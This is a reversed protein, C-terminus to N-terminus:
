RVSEVLEMLKATDVVGPSVRVTEPGLVIFAPTGTVGLRQALARNAAIRGTVETSAMDSRLRAADLGLTTALEDVLGEGYGEPREMLAFHADVYRDQLGAALALRAARESDEGLIPYERLELRVGARGAATRVADLSRKCFGCRYDFFEVVTVTGAVDGAVPVGDAGVLEGRLRTANSALQRAPDMAQRLVEPHSLLYDRIMGEVQALDPAAAGTPPGAVVPPEPGRRVRVEVRSTAAAGPLVALHVPRDVGELLVVVNGTPARKGIARLVAVHPHSPMAAVDLAVTSSEVQAIRLPAGARDAFVLTTLQGARAELAPAAEGPALTLEVVRLGDPEEAAAVAAVLVLLASARFVNWLDKM